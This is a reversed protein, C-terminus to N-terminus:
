SKYKIFLFDNTYIINFNVSVKGYLAHGSHEAHPSSCFTCNSLLRNKELLWHTRETALISKAVQTQHELNIKQYLLASNASKVARLEANLQSIRADYM